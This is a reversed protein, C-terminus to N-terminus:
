CKGLFCLWGFAICAECLPYFHSLTEVGQALGSGLQPKATAAEVASAM